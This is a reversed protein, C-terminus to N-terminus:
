SRWRRCTRGVESAAPLADVPNTAVPDASVTVGARGLAEIFATRAFTAPDDFAYVNVVPGSDAAITGSLVVTGTRPRTSASARRSARRGGDAGRQARDVARGAAADRDDGAAGRVGAHHHLRDREPQHHDADGTRERASAAAWLRDDVIVDGSVANVGAARVQAALDNLGTLPDEPTLTAGPIGNADNHDLNTFDVTGDPKTRGGMTLDGQGVLM